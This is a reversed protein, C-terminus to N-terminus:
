GLLAPNTRWLVGNLAAAFTVWALYPALLWGATKSIKAFAIATGAILLWLLVVDVFAAGGRQWTFFLWSWLANIVLQVLFLALAQWKHRQQIDSRWVLWAAIAMCTFLATWVPGFLWGPPAWSPQILQAYFSRANVSALAGIAATAYCLALWAVFGLAQQPRTITSTNM